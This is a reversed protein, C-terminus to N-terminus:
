GGYRLYIWYGFLGLGVLGYFILAPYNCAVWNKWTIYSRCHYCMHAGEIYKECCHPCIPGEPNTM